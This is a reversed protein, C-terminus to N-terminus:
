CLCLNSPWCYARCDDASLIGFWSPIRQVLCFLMVKVFAGSFFQRSYPLDNIVCVLVM